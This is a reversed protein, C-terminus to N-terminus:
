ELAVSAKYIDIFSDFCVNGHNIVKYMYAVRSHLSPIRPQSHEGFIYKVTLNLM